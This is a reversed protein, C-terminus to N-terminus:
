HAKYPRHCSPGALNKGAPNPRDRSEVGALGRRVGSALGQRDGADGSVDRVAAPSTNSTHKRLRGAPTHPTESRVFRAVGVDEDSAYTSREVNATVHCDPTELPLISRDDYNSFAQSQYLALAARTEQAQCAIQRFEM